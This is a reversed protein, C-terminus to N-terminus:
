KKGAKVKERAIDATTRFDIKGSGMKPLEPVVIFQRPMAIPPLSKAMQKLIEKEKVKKTVAAVIKAGKLSDPVEVVCCEVGKPLVSELVMETKVLSVMEGGIKVFRKLRGKHWIYGDKDIMGMDGTDYWGDKIRLSTEEIDDLYGKMIMDGKVLIKGEKGHPLDKGTSIDTIKVHATPIPKGISGPRNAGPLNLSVVPSTETCGYGELLTIHHKKMYEDRLWDPTKDAGAVVLRLTSFDEPKSQHVYGAFFVPTAAIITAKEERILAPIRKYDLPNAFTVATMGAIMPLWFDVTQGFVHFLPLISMIVDKETLGYVKQVDILNSGINRHTLQVAKPDKESGSTFLIVVNDDVQSPPFSNCILKAPLKSKLASALKDAATIRDMVDEIMVMGPVLRCGIKELLARSTIITKFGCKNQAYECNDAAGTSYNIMVPVKGAMLTGLVSLFGGASTPIMIGLYGEKYKQFKKALILSAILAKSFPVRKDTTRDAIALKDGQRKATKVFEHHLIM